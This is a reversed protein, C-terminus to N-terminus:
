QGQSVPDGDRHRHRDELGRDRAGRRRSRSGRSNACQERLRRVEAATAHGRDSRQGVDRSYGCALRWRRHGCVVGAPTAQSVVYAAAFAVMTAVAERTALERLREGVEGPLKTAAISIAKGFKDTTAMHAIDLGAPAGAPKATATQPPALFNPLEPRPAPAILVSSAGGSMYTVIENKQREDNLADLRALFKPDIQTVPGSVLKLNVADIALRLRVSVGGGAQDVHRDLAHIQGAHAAQELVQLLPVMWMSNLKGWVPHDATVGLAPEALAASAIADRAEQAADVPGPPQDRAIAFAAGRSLRVPPEGRLAAHSATVAEHELHAGPNVRLHRPDSSARGSQQVVHALEHALLQRGLAHEPRYRGENFVIHDGVTYANARLMNASAAASAGTHVRVHSFDHNFHRQM